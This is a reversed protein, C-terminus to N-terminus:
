VYRARLERKLIKGAGSIPFETVFDLSRPCKYGAIQNRCHQRLEEVTLEAGPALIVVAHVREGWEADPIGIVAVQAVSPHSAIANEVETSYVNEGGTIIMDKIRDAIFIYGHEDMWAGDGTHMWGDRLAEATEAPKNWYGLMVHDGSVVIEGVTGHSVPNGLPDVIRVSAHPAAKGCSRRLTPDDHDEDGLLTVIASCETMGYGQVFRTGPLVKRARELLAPSTSAAGYYLQELCSLDYDGLEPHDVVMQIMTPVLLMARVRHKAVTTMVKVPDFAPIVVHTTGTLSASAWHWLAALHFLPATFLVHGGFISTGSAIAGYATAMLNRHSLMVGKPFGTTGGTYFIGALADGKRLADDWPESHEILGELDRLGTPADSEGCYVVTLAPCEELLAPLMPLFADDIFLVDVGADVLSYAIETASWRINVPVLVADAWPVALLLQLYTDSNLSLLAVRDDTGVGLDRLGGAIRSVRDAVEANTLTRSGFISYIGDPDQQVARHLSQTLHM